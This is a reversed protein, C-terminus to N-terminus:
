NQAFFRAVLIKPQMYPVDKSHRSLYCFHLVGSLDVVYMVKAVHV